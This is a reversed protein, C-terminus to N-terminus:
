PIQTFPVPSVKEKKGRDPIAHHNNQWSSKFTALIVRFIHKNIEWQGATYASDLWVFFNRM